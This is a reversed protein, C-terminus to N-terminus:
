LDALEKAHISRHLMNRYAFPSLAMSAIDIMGEQDEPDAVADSVQARLAKSHERLARAVAPGDTKLDLQEIRKQVLAESSAITDLANAAALKINGAELTLFSTIDEDLLIAWRYTIVVEVDGGPPAAFTVVGLRGDVLLPATPIGGVWTSVSDPVVPANPVTFQTTFGDGAAVVRDFQFPDAIILRVTDVDTM